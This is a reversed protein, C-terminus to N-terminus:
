APEVSTIEFRAGGDSGETLHVRWDHAEIIQKVISLGLGTGGQTTSHGAEFVQSREDSPIGPGDDEVYFGSDIEGVTVTVNQGGHEIANRVLNELLQRLRHRDARLHRDTEIVLTADATEVMQWCTECLPALGIPETESIQKGVRSLTLLDEILTKMRNHATEVDALHTSECDQQALQLRGQAVNLPNRLDHSVVSAFEELRENTNQLHREIEKRTSIDRTNVVYNGDPTPNASAVSEVWLYTRDARRHRYEVAEVTEKESTVVAQFAAIVKERDDPHFYEAVQEGVLDDQRYGYIREISPSEYLVIGEEDLVTLLSTSHLPLM